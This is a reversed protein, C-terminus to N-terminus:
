CFSGRDITKSLVQFLLDLDRVPGLLLAWRSGRLPRAMAFTSTLCRWFWRLGRLRRLADFVLNCVIVISWLLRDTFRCLYDGICLEGEIRVRNSVSHGGVRIGIDPVRGFEILNLYSRGTIGVTITAEGGISIAVFARTM